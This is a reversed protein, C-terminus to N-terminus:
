IQDIQLEIILETSNNVANSQYLEDLINGRLSRESPSEEFDKLYVNDEKSVSYSSNAGLLVCSDLYKVVVNKFQLKKGSGVYILAESSAETLNFGQGDKLYLTGGHGDYIFHDFTENDVILPYISQDMIVAELMHSMNHEEYSLMNGVTPVFFEVVALLFDLAVLLQPRQICLSVFTSDQAFKVDVILMTPVPFGNEKVISSNVSDQNQQHSFANLLSAGVNEPKGSNNKLVRVIMLCLSVKSLQLSSDKEM